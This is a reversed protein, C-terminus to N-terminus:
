PEVRRPTEPNASTHPLPEGSRLLRHPTATTNSSHGVNAGTLPHPRGEVAPVRDNRVAFVRRM